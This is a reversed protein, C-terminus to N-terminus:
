VSEKKKDLQAYCERRGKEEDGPLYLSQNELLANKESQDLVINQVAVKEQPDQLRHLLSRHGRVDFEDKLFHDALEWTEAMLSKLHKQDLAAPDNVQSTKELQEALPRFAEDYSFPQAHINIYGTEKIALLRYINMNPEKIETRTKHWSHFYKALFMFDSSTPALNSSIITDLHDPFDGPLLEKPVYMDPTFKHLNNLGGTIYTKDIFPVLKETVYPYECLVLSKIELHPNFYNDIIHQTYKQLGEQGIPNGSFLMYGRDTQAVLLPTDFEPDCLYQKERGQQETLFHLYEPMLEIDGGASVYEQAAPCRFKFYEQRLSFCVKPHIGNEEIYPLLVQKVYISSPTMRMPAPVQNMHPFEYWLLHADPIFSCLAVDQINQHMFNCFHGASMQGADFAVASDSSPLYRHYPDICIFISGADPRNFFADITNNRTSM